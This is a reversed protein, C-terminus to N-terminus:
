NGNLIGPSSAKCCEDLRAKLIEIEKNQEKVAEVLLGIISPYNMYKIGSEGTIVAEPVVQEVEQAIFGIETPPTVIAPTILANSSNYYSHSPEPKYNFSVGHLQLIKSLPSSLNQINEKLSADSTLYWHRAYADGSGYVYFKDTDNGNLKVSLAKVNLGYVKSLFNYGWDGGDTNECLLTQINSSIKLKYYTDPASGGISFNGSPTFKMIKTQTTINGSSIFGLGSNTNNDVGFSFGTSSGNVNNSAFFRSEYSTSNSYSRAQTIATTSQIDLQTAPASTGVGVNGSLFAAAYNYTAGTPTNVTLGYSNVAGSATGSQILLAHANTITANTSKIPVGAIGVTAANTITSAGVFSYTPQTILVERQTAIAGTAWQRGATTISLSPIEITTSQNQNVAGTYVIGKLAGGSTATQTIAIKGTPSTTGFGINGTTNAIFLRTGGSSDVVSFDSGNIGMQWTKSTLTNRLSLFPTTGKIYLKTTPNTAGVGVNGNPIVNLQAHLVISFMAIAIFTFILKKM